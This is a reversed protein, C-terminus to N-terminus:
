LARAVVLHHVLGLCAKFEVDEGVRFGAGALAAWVEHPKRRFVRERGWTGLHPARPSQRLSFRVEPEYTFVFCGGAKVLTAVRDVFGTLDAVHEVAGCSQVVDFPARLRPQVAELTGQLLECPDPALELVKATLVRPSRYRSWYPAVWDYVPALVRDSM